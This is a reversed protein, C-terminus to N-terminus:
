ESVVAVRHNFPVLADFIETLVLVAERGRQSAGFGVIQVPGVGAAAQEDRSLERTAFPALPHLYIRDGVTLEVPPVRRVDSM